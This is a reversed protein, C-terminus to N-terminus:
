VLARGTLRELVRLPAQEPTAMAAVPLYFTQEMAFHGALAAHSVQDTFCMWTSGAAFSWPLSPVSKQYDDDLKMRDHLALMMQDYASQVGKTLGLLAYLRARVAAPAPLDSLFRSALDPFPEGIRWDRARGDPAFNTFLRLIRGGHTPRTPFADVHLRRDDKRPSYDRGDIEAPRFSTRGPRLNHGYDALLARALGEASAAFRRLMGTLLDGEASAGGIRGTAPDFSINKRKGSLLDASLLSKEEATPEFRLDPLVVVQGAEIAAVAARGVLPDSPGNWDTVSLECVVKDPSM